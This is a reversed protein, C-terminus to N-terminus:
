KILDSVKKAQELLDNYRWEEKLPIISYRFKIIEEYIQAELKDPFSTKLKLYHNAITDTTGVISFISSEALKRMINKFFGM